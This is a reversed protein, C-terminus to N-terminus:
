RKVPVRDPSGTVRINEARAKRVNADFARTFDDGFTDSGSDLVRLTTTTGDDSRFRKMKVTTRAGGSIRGERKTIVVKAMADEERVIYRVLQLFSALTSCGGGGGKCGGERPRFARGAGDRM